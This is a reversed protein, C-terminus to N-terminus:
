AGGAPRKGSIIFFLLGLSNMVLLSDLLAMIGALPIIIASVALAGLFSGMLDAGYGLGYNVNEKLLLRNSVVFLSGGLSGLTFLFLFLLFEQPRGGIVQRLFAILLIFGGQAIILSARGGAPRKRGFWSGATLGAMFAALLLSIKSYVYGYFSQFAIVVVLEVVITTFGMTALPVLYTGASRKRHLALVLLFVAYLLLPANLLWHAPLRAFMRLSSAELGKFQSSWLVSYFYYSVPVLDRNIRAPRERM